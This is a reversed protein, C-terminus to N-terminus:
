IRWGELALRIQCNFPIGECQLFLEQLGGCELAFADAPGRLLCGRCVSLSPGSRVWFSKGINESPQLETGLSGEGRRGRTRM